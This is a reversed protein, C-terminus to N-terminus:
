GSSSRRAATAGDADGAHVPEHAAVDERERTARDLGRAVDVDQEEVLGARDGQAVALRGGEHGHGADALGLQGLDRLDGREGVLRGLAARDDHEGLLVPDALALERGVLRGEDGERGLGAHAADVVVARAQALAGTVRDDPADLVVAPLRWRLEVDSIVRMARSPPVGSATALSM